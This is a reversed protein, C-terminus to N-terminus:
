PCYRPRTFTRSWFIDDELGLATSRRLKMDCVSANLEGEVVLLLLLADVQKEEEESFAVIVLDTKSFRSLWSFFILVTWALECNTSNMESISVRKDLKCFYCKNPM